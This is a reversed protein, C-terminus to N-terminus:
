AEINLVLAKRVNEKNDELQDALKEDDNTKILVIELIMVDNLGFIEVVGDGVSVVSGREEPTAGKPSFNEIEKKIKELILNSM